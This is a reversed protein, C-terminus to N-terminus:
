TFSQPHHPTLILTRGEVRWSKLQSLFNMGLVDTDGFAPSVVVSLDHAVIDGLKLDGISATRASITGNSTLLIMPLAPRHVDLGAAAATDSSIATVTAGSDILMRRTVGDITARAWFHGDAAMHIQVEKGVVQQDDLQLMAAARRWYPDILGRQTVLFVGAAFIAVWALLMTIVRGVPVRRALLAAVPLVLLVTYLGVNPVADATM